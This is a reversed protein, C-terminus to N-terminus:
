ILITIHCHYNGGDVRSGRINIQPEKQKSLNQCLELECYLFLCEYVQIM